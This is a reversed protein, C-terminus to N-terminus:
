LYRVFGEKMQKTGNSEKRQLTGMEISVTSQERNRPLSTKSVQELPTSNSITLARRHVDSKDSERGKVQRPPTPKFFYRSLSISTVQRRLYPSELISDKTFCFVLAGLSFIVVLFVLINIVVTGRCEPLGPNTECLETGARFAMMTGIQVVYMTVLTLAELNNLQDDLYPKYWSDLLPDFVTNLQSRPRKRIM